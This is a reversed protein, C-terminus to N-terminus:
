GGGLEALMSRIRACLEVDFDRSSPNGTADRSAGGRSGSPQTSRLYVSGLEVAEQKRDLAVLARMRYLVALGPDIGTREAAKMGLALHSEAEVYNEVAFDALGLQVLASANEADLALVARFAARAEEYQQALMPAAATELRRAVEGRVAEHVAAVDYTPPAVRLLECFLAYARTEKESALALWGCRKLLGLYAQEVQASDPETARAARARELAEDYRGDAELVLADLLALRPEEPLLARAQEVRVRYDDVPSKAVMERAREILAHGYAFRIREHAPYTRHLAALLAEARDTRRTQMYLAALRQPIEISGRVDPLARELVAIAEDFLGEAEYIMARELVIREHAPGRYSDLVRSAATTEGRLRHWEARATIAIASKAATADRFARDLLAGAEVLGPDSAPLPLATAAARAKALLVEAERALAGAHDPALRLVEALVADVQEDKGLRSLVDVLQLRLEIRAREFRVRHDDAIDIACELHMRAEVAADRALAARMRQAAVRMARVPEVVCRAARDLLSEAAENDGVTFYWEALNVLAVDDRPYVELNAQWLRESSTFEGSRARARLTAAVLVVLALALPACVRLRVSKIRLFSAAGHLMAAFVLALGPLALYLYRDAAAVAFAPKVGNFPLLAAFFALIGLGIMKSTRGGRRVLVLAFAITVALWLLQVGAHRAFDAQLSRPRHVALEAPWLTVSVYHWFTGPLARFDAEFDSTGASAALYLHHLGSVIVIVGTMAVLTLIRRGRGPPIVHSEGQDVTTGRVSASAYWVLAGVLPLVISTAKSYCAVITAIAVPWTSAGRLVVRQGLWLALLFWFGSLVDKRSSIWIVSETLAPHVLFLATGCFAAWTPLRLRVLISWLVVAAAVHLALSHVHYISTQVNPNSGMFGTVAHDIWLSLYTFPLYVDAITASPDLLRGLGELGGLAFVPNELVTRPDDFNLFAGGLGPAFALVALLTALPAVFLLSRFRHSTM